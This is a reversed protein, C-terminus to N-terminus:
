GRSTTCVPVAEEAETVPVEIVRFSTDEGLHDRLVRLGVNCPSFLPSFPIAGLLGPFPPQSTPLLEFGKTSARRTALGTWSLRVRM